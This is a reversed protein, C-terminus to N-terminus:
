QKHQRTSFSKKGTDSKNGKNRDKETFLSRFGGNAEATMTVKVAAM